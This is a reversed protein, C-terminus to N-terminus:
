LTNLGIEVGIEAVIETPHKLFFKFHMELDQVPPFFTMHPQYSLPFSHYFFSRYIVTPLIIICLFFSLVNIVDLSLFRVVPFVSLFSVESAVQQIKFNLGYFPAVKGLYNIYKETYASRLM